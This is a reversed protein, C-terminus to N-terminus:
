KVDVVAEPNVYGSKVDAENCQISEMKLNVIRFSLGKWGYIIKLGASVNVNCNNPLYKEYKVTSTNKTLM